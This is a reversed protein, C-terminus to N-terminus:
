SDSTCRRLSKWSRPTTSFPPIPMLRRSSYSSRLGRYSCYASMVTFMSSRFMVAAARLTAEATWYVSVIRWVGWYSLPCLVARRFRTDATRIPGPAGDFVLLRGANASRRQQTGTNLDLALKELSRQNSSRNDSGCPWMSKGAKLVAHRYM